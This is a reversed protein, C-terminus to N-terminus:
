ATKEKWAKGIMWRQKKCTPAKTLRRRAPTDWSGGKTEGDFRFGAARLSTGPETDLIYTFLRVYGMARCVRWAAAYLKSCANRTGDTCLRTIEATQGDDLCRAVPRGVICVGCLRDGDLCGIAFKHGTVAGHHRHLMVVFANAQNLTVPCITLSM